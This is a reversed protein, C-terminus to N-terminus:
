SRYRCCALLLCSSSVVDTNPDPVPQAPPVPVQAAVAPQEDGVANQVGQVAGAQAPAVALPDELQQVDPVVPVQNAM